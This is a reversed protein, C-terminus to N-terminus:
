PQPLRQYVRFVWFFPPAHYLSESFASYFGDRRIMWLQVTPAIISREEADDIRVISPLMIDEIATLYSIIDRKRGNGKSSNEKDSTKIARKKDSTKAFELSLM